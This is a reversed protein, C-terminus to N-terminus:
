ANLITKYISLLYDAYTNNGPAYVPAMTRVFNEADSKVAMAAVYQRQTFVKCHHDFSEEPSNYKRFYADGSYKYIPRGAAKSQISDIEIKRISNLGVQKATLNPNSNFEFTSVLQENGNIGDYDKVGFMMNGPAHEGWGTELASQALIILALVGCKAETNKAFPLYKTKFDKPNM